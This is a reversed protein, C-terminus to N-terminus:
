TLPSVAMSRWFCTVSELGINEDKLKSWKKLILENASGKIGMLKIQRKKEFYQTSQM